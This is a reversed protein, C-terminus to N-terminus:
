RCQSAIPVGYFGMADFSASAEAGMPWSLLAPRSPTVGGSELANRKAAVVDILIKQADRMHALLEERARLLREKALDGIQRAIIDRALAIADTVDGGLLSSRFSEPMADFRKREADLMVAYALYDAMKRDALADHVPGAPAARVFAVRGADDTKELAAIARGLEGERPQQIQKVKEAAATAEDWRCTSFAILAELVGAEAYRAGAEPAALIRLNGLARAYDGAMFRAWAEEFLADLYYEGTADVRRYFKVAASLRMPDVVPANNEDLRIAASYYTRAMSINALDRLRQVNEVGQPVGADIWEILRQFARMAPVARRVEVNAIGLFMQAKGYLPSDRPVREYHAIAEDLQRNREAYRGRLYSLRAYLPRQQANDFAAIDHEDYKGIREIIDAAEPLDSALQSLWPLTAAFKSDTKRDAIEAFLGYSEQKMGMRHLTVALDFRAREKETQSSSSSRYVDFLAVARTADTQARATGSLMVFALALVSSRWWM